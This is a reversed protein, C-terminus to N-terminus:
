MYTPTPVEDPDSSEHARKGIKTSLELSSEDKFFTITSLELSSEDKFQFNIDMDVIQSYHSFGDSLTTKLKIGLRSSEVERWIILHEFQVYTSCSVPVKPTKENFVLCIKRSEISM